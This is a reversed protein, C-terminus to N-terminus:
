AAFIGSIPRSHLTIIKGRGGRSLTSGTSSRFLFCREPALFTAARKEGAKELIQQFEMGPKQMATISKVPIAMPLDPGPGLSRHEDLLRDNTLGTTPLESCAAMDFGSADDIGRGDPRM